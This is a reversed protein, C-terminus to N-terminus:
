DIGLSVNHKTSIRIVQPYACLIIRQGPQTLRGLEIKEKEKEQRRDPKSFTWNKNSYVRCM